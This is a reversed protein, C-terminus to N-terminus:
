IGRNNLPTIAAEQIHVQLRKIVISTFPLIYLLLLM